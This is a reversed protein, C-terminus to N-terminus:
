HYMYDAYNCETITKYTLYAYSKIWAILEMNPIQEKDVYLM